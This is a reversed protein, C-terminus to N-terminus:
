NKVGIQGQKFHAELEANDLHPIDPKETQASFLIWFPNSCECMYKQALPKNEEITRYLAKEANVLINPANVKVFRQCHPCKVVLM